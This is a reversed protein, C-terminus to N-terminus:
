ARRRGGPPRGEPAARFRGELLERRLAEGVAFDCRPATGRATKKGVALGFCTFVRKTGDQELKM